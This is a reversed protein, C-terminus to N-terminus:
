TAILGHARCRALLDNLRLIVSAADTANAIAAGQAGVVKTGAVNYQAATNTIGTYDVEFMEVDNVVGRFLNATVGAANIALFNSGTGSAGTRAARIMNVSGTSDNYTTLFGEYIETFKTASGGIAVNMVLLYGGSTDGIVIGPRGSGVLLDDMTIVNVNSADYFRLTNDSSDLKVRKYHGVAGSDTQVVLGTLTGTTINDATLYSATVKGANIILTSIQAATITNATIENATISGAVIEAANINKGGQSQLVEWTPEVTGNQAVAVIVHHAGIATTPNTTIQYTTTSTTIDLYIYTKAAMDGTNGANISYATGDTATFTGAGWAVTNADTMSFVCTQVWGREALAINAPSILGSLYGTNVVSGTNTSIAGKITLGAGTWNLYNTADGIYFKPKDGDSDDLGLIFGTQTNTFDTKGARIACDGTGATIGLVIQQSAITGATIKAANLDAIKANTVALDAIFATGIVMNASSNWVLTHIGATNIAIMFATIGLTPHTNSISYAAAGITWYVYVTATPLLAVTNGAAIPYSVGNYVIHHSNWAISGGVPSNNTWADGTLIVTNTWMKTATISFDDIDTATVGDSTGSVGTGTGDEPEFGSKLGSTNVARLWYYRTVNGSGIPDIYTIGKIEAIMSATNIHNTASQWIEVRDFDHDTPNTWTLTISNLFGATALDEPAAPVSQKGHIVIANCPANETAQMTGDPGVAQVRVEYKHGVIFDHTITSTRDSTRM